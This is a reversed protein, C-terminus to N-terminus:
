TVDTKRFGVFDAVGIQPFNDECVHSSLGYIRGRLQEQIREHSDSVNIVGELSNALYEGGNVFVVGCIRCKYASRMMTNVQFM